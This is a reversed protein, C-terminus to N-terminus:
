YCMSLIEFVDKEKLQAFGSVPGSACLVESINKIDEKPVGLEGLTPVLGLDEFFLKSLRDSIAEAIDDCREIGLVNEAFAIYRDRCDADYCYRIWRPLLIALGHGHTIGYRASLEHEITHCNWAQRVPGNIFGNIAWSAAWMLNARAEYDDPHEYAKVGYEIVTKMISEMIGDLMKLSEQKNFYVEMVHSLIDVAGCATQYKGVSFSYEPNLFSVKPYLLPSSRGIKKCLERNSIVGGCNMESGTAAITLITIIPLANDITTKKSFFDWPDFDVCASAAIWKAADIVSGGGVALIVDIKHKVCLEQGKRVSTIDPNPEIGGLEYLELDPLLGVITDYLGIRKVSDGGYVLLVRTGYQKISDTLSHELHDKGFYVKVPNYFCFDNMM